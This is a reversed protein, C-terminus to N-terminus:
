VKVRVKSPRCTCTALRTLSISSTNSALIAGEQLKEDVAAFLKRKLGEEEVAAEVVFDAAALCGLDTSVSVRGLAEEGESRSMQDKRVLREIGNRINDMARGLAAESIDNLVVPIGRCAVLQAIGGGMQGAGVVGLLEPLKVIMRAAGSRGVRKQCFRGYAEWVLLLARITVAALAASVTVPPAVVGARGRRASAFAVVGISVIVDTEFSVSVKTDFRAFVLHTWSRTNSTGFTQIAM